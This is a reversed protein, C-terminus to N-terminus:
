FKNTDAVWGFLGMGLHKMNKEGVGLNNLAILDDLLQFNLHEFNDMVM